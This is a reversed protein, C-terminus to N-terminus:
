KADDGLHNVVEFQYQKTVPQILSILDSFLKTIAIEKDLFFKYACFNKYGTALTLMYNCGLERHMFVLGNNIDHLKRQRMVEKGSSDQCDIDDFAFVKSKTCFAAKRIPDSESLNLKRFTQQWDPRSMISTSTKYITDQIGIAVYDIIPIELAHIYDSFTTQINQNELPKYRGLKM